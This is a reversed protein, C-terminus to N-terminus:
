IRKLLDDIKAHTFDPEAGRLKSQQLQLISPIESVHSSQGVVVNFFASPWMYGGVITVYKGIKLRNVHSDSLEGLPGPVNFQGFESEILGGLLSTPVEIPADNLLYIPQGNEDQTAHITIDYIPFFVVVERILTRSIKINVQYYENHFM